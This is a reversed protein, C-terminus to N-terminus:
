RCCENVCSKLIFIYNELVKIIGGGADAEKRKRGEKRLVVLLWPFGDATLFGTSKRSSARARETHRIDNDRLTVGNSSPGSM